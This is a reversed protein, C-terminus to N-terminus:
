SISVDRRIGPIDFTGSASSGNLTVLFFPYGGIKVLGASALQKGLTLLRDPDSGSLGGHSSKSILYLTEALTAQDGSDVVFVVAQSNGGLAARSLDFSLSGKQNTLPAYCSALVVAALFLGAVKAIHSNGKEM